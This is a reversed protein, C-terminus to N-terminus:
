KKFLDSYDQNNECVFEGVKELDTRLNFNRKVTWPKEWVNPDEVTAEYELSDASPRRFKEIVHMEETHKFGNVETKDNFGISDIVLTDGEWKAVSDGMWTPDPDVQHTGGNIPAIRFVGPYEHLIIVHTRNQVIQFQYPVSYAQPPVLPKCDAYQGADNPGRVVKFKEAGAKLVPPPPANPGPRGGFASDYIGSFDPKGDATRPVAKAAAALAAADVPKTGAVTIAIEKTLVQNNPGTVTLTYTTTASPTLAKSGRPTVRGVGPEIKVSSPNETSWILQITQGPRISMKDAKFDVIRAPLQGAQRYAPTGQAHCLTALAFVSAIAISARTHFRSVQKM